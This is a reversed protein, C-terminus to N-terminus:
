GRRRWHRLGGGVGVDSGRTRIVTSHFVETDTFVVLDDDVAETRGWSATPRGILDRLSAMTGTALDVLVVDSSALYDASYAAAVTSNVETLATLEPALEYSAATMTSADIVTLPGNLSRGYVFRSPFVQRELMLMEPVDVSGLTSGDAAYFSVVNANDDHGVAVVPGGNSTSASLSTPETPDSTLEATSSTPTSDEATSACGVFASGTAVLLVTWM